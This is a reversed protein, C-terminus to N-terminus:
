WIQSFVAALVVSFIMLGALVLSVTRVLIRKRDERSPKKNHPAHPSSTM